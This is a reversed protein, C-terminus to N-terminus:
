NICGNSSVLELTKEYVERWSKWEMEDSLSENHWISIFRGNVKRVEEVLERIKDFAEKPRLKLGNKLAVDM